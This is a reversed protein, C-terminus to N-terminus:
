PRPVLREVSRRVHDAAHPEDLRIATNAATLVADVQFAVLDADPDVVDGAAIAHRAQEAILALWARRQRRLAERVPGPRSDFDPLNAAWFCGGAFTPQEAYGIWREVLAWLRAAGRPTDLVPRVVADLFVERAAEVTALQLQEKSRFLTAVGSKSLGLDAALGGLSLGALGTVSAVDAAHRTITRRTRAGRARRQDTTM